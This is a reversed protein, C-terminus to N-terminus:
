SKNSLSNGTPQGIRSRIATVGRNIGADAARGVSAAAQGVRGGGRIAGRVLAATHFHLGGALANAASPLQAAIVAALMFFIMGSMLVRIQEFVNPGRYILIQQVIQGEVRLTVALLIITMVQLVVCSIMAGIWRQFISETASFLSLGIALPGLIIFLGLIFHSLLWIFFGIVIAIMAVIWFAIITIEEGVDWYDLLRWVRLGAEYAQKWVLDFSNADFNYDGVGAGSVARTIDNPLVTLFFNQVWETYVSGNTAFWVVLSLKIVRGLLGGAPMGGQGRMILLGTLAIYLVLAAQVPTSAYAILAAVLQGVSDVFPTEWSDVIYKFIQTSQM